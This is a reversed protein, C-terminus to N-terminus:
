LALSFQLLINISHFFLQLHTKAYAVRCVRLKAEVKLVTMHMLVEMLVFQYMHMLSSVKIFVINNISVLCM